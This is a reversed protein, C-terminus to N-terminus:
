IVEVDIELGPVNALRKDRTLFGVGLFEALALYTADYATANHRLDWIRTLKMDIRHRHLPLRRLLGLASEARQTGIEGSRELRWLAQIIESDILFPAHLPDRRARLRTQVAEASPRGILLDIVVSADVVIM